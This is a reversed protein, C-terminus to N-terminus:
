TAFLLTLGGTTFAVMLLLLPAQGSLKREDPLLSLARDHAAIVGLVHGVLVAIVQVAAVTTPGILATSPEVDSRGALFLFARQGELVLMSYYHAVLYGVVIPLLTPAVEAAIGVPGTAALYTLAVLSITGLLGVTTLVPLSETLRIWATSGSFADFATSGLLVAIVAILGPRIPVSALGVFPNRRGFPSLAGLLTSYVEFGDGREFWGEGYVLAAGLHIVTYAAFFVALVRPSSGNPAALELWTFATLSAAAPWYGLWEPLPRLRQRSHLGPLQCLLRHLLRLPNAYRWVPGFLASLLPMGVWFLVYVVYPVPNTREDPGLVAVGALLMTAALTLGQLVPLDRTAAPTTPQFRPQKWAVGLVLFSVLLAVAAGQLVLDLPLPLDDRGGVGHAVIM